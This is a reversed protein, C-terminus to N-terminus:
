GPQRERLRKVRAALERRLHEQDIGRDAAAGVSKAPDGSADDGAAPRNVDDVDVLEVNRLLTGIIRTEREHDASPVAETTSMCIELQEVKRFIAAYLRGIIQARTERSIPIAEVAAPVVTPLRSSAATKATAGVKKKVKPRLNPRAQAVQRTSTQRSAPLKIAGPASATTQSRVWHRTRAYSQLTKVSITNSAALDELSGTHTEYALQLAAWDRAPAFLGNSSHTM